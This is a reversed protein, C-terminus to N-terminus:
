EQEALLHEWQQWENPDLDFSLLNSFDYQEQKEWGHGNIPQERIGPEYVESQPILGDVGGSTETAQTHAPETLPRRCRRISVIYEPTSPEPLGEKKNASVCDDWVQLTWNGLAAYVPKTNEEFIQPHSSFIAAILQWAHDVESGSKRHRVEILVYLITEWIYNTTDLQWMFKKMTENNHLLKAYEMMKMGSEFIINRSTQPVKIGSDAFQRPNHAFLKMKCVSSRAIISAFYHLPNSPDCYRLYKEELYDQMENILDHKESLSLGTESINEWQIYSSKPTFKRMFDMMDCRILCHVITTIGKREQPFLISDPNIDEDDINLPKKTDGLFVDMSPKAGSLDSTRCDIHVIHWWLRRRMETEFPSLRLSTGDRHLGMRRALRVSIGSLIYLSGTGWYRRM